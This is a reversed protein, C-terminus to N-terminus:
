FLLSNLIHHVGVFFPVLQVPRNQSIPLQLQCLTFILEDTLTSIHLKEKEKKKKKQVYKIHKRIGHPYNYYIADPTGVTKKEHNYSM